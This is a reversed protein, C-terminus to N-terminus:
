KGKIFKYGEEIKNAIRDAIEKDNPSQQLDSVVCELCDLDWSYFGVKRKGTLNAIRMDLGFSEAMQWANEQLLALEDDEFKIETKIDNKKPKM